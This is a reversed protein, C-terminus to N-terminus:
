IVFYINQTIKTSNQVSDHEDFCVQVRQAHNTNRLFRINWKTDIWQEM